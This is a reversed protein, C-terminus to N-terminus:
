KKAKKKQEKKTKGKKKKASEKEKEPELDNYLPCNKCCKGKKEIKHCCKKKTKVM